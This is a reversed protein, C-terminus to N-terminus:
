YKTNRDSELKRALRIFEALVRSMADIILSIIRRSKKEKKISDFNTKLISKAQPLTKQSIEILFNLSTLKSKNLVDQLKEPNIDTTIVQILMFISIGRLSMFITKDLMESSYSIWLLFSNQEGSFIPVIVILIFIAIWFKYNKLPKISSSFTLKSILLILFTIAVPNYKLFMIAFFVVFATLVRKSILLNSIQM